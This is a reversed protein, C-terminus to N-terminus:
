PLPFIQQLRDDLHTLRKNAQQRQVAMHLAKQQGIIVVLSKGRTVATYLLNRELLMYHQTALPIVVVPYESGQSKHITIAYALSIDDLEDFGYNVDRGDFNILLEESEEDIAQIVGIDGNFVEKEYNNVMQIIKDQCKFQKFPPLKSSTQGEPNLAQQLVFNLNRAGLEGRQMPSLVQIAEIANYGFREPIRTSVVYLLKKLIDSPNDANIFYFDSEPEPEAEKEQMNATYATAEEKIETEATTPTTKKDPSYPAIGKNIRHANMIIQSHQAQRFIETLHISPIAPNSLIDALVMGAGVSPLQDVDGVLILGAQDPIARILQYMLVIDVMSVEDVILLDTELPKEANRKFDGTQGDFELLRHITKAPTLTSESLRKAARGTPACLHIQLDEGKLMHIISNVLTTKGVGPGGTIIVVNHQAALQLAKHQSSSLPVGTYEAVRRLGLKFDLYQWKPTVALLRQLHQAVGQEAYYYLPLFIHPFSGFTDVILNNNNVEHSLADNIIDDPIDLLENTKDVLEKRIAACHGQSALEKLTHLVGARARLPSHAPMGISQAIEDATKFGISRIDKALRYPNKTIKSIAEDGYAKYIAAARSTGINHSQLFVMIHRVTRQEEWANLLQQYRKKGIGDLDLLKEPTNEIVEFVQDGFAHILKDAFHAGIGKIMGSMLYKKIGAETTPPKIHLLDAKFQDGYTPHTSWHGYAEIHDGVNVQLITGVVTLAYASNETNVRLVCFGNEANHFSVHDVVGELQEQLQEDSEIDM